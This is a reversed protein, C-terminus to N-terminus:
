TRRLGYTALYFHIPLVMGTFKSSTGIYSVLVKRLLDKEHRVRVDFKTRNAYGSYVVNITTMSILHPICITGFAYQQNLKFEVENQPAIQSFLADGSGM